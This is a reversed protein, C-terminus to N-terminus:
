TGVCPYLYKFQKLFAPVCQALNGGFYANRRRAGVAEPADAGGGDPVDLDIGKLAQFALAGEGYTKTLGKLEVALPKPTVPLLVIQLVAEM